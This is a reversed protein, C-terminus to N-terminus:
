INENMDKQNVLASVICVGDKAVSLWHQDLFAQSPAGLMKSMSSQMFIKDHEQRTLEREKTIQSCGRFNVM